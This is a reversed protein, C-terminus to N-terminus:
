LKGKSTKLQDLYRKGIKFGFQDFDYILIDGDSASVQKSGSVIQTYANAAAILEAPKVMPLNHAPLVWTANHAYGAILAISTGYDYLNTAEDFLFIHGHYFSDGTWLYRAKNDYLCIADPTHGPTSIVKLKRDGLDIIYGNNIYRTVTFPHIHYKATDFGPLNTLCISGPTVEDCVQQHSYGNASSHRTYATNMALIHNFEYNGGIHDPHTHSNLVWVPLRTLQKIVPSVHDMGMGTDFLLAKNSGIILYGITEEWNYPEAIAYTHHGVDYVKFWPYPTKVERLNKLGSRISRNCWSTDTVMCFARFPLTLLVFAITFFLNRSMM